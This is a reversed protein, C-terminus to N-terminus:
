ETLGFVKALEEENLHSGIVCLRGTYDAEGHRVEFEEPVMDFHLWTGDTCPLIGKARLIIGCEDDDSLRTLIERLQEESYKHPTEKGWSSFVEDAHHHHHDHDHDHCGCTCDPGHDHDHHDHHDHDHDHHDHDHHDHDHDHDCCHEHDHHDHDHHDHDHHDHDHEEMLHEMEEKMILDQHEMAALIQEGKLEDWPTTIIAAKPNKERLM